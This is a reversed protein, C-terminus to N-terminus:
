EQDIESFMEFYSMCRLGASTISDTLMLIAGNENASTGRMFLCIVTFRSMPRNRDKSKHQEFGEREMCYLVVILLVFDVMKVHM